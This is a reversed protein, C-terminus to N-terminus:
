IERPLFVEDIDWKFHRVHTYPIIKLVRDFHSQSEKMCFELLSKNDSQLVVLDFDGMDCVACYEGEHDPPDYIGSIM